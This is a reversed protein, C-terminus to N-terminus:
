RTLQTKKVLPTMKTEVPKVPTEPIVPIVAITPPPQTPLIVM